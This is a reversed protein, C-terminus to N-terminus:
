VKWEEHLQGVGCKVRVYLKVYLRSFSQTCAGTCSWTGKRQDNVKARMVMNWSRGWIM